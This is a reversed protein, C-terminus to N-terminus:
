KLNYVIKPNILSKKISKKIITKDGFSEEEIEIFDKLFKYLVNNLVIRYKDSFSNICEIEDILPFKVDNIELVVPNKVYLRSLYTPILHDIIYLYEPKNLEITKEGSYYQLVMTLFLYHDGVPENGSLKVKADLTCTNSCLFDFPNYYIFLYSLIKELNWLLDSFFTEELDHEYDDM